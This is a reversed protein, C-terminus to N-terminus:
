RSSKDFTANRMFGAPLQFASIGGNHRHEELLKDLEPNRIMVSAEQRNSNFNSNALREEISNGPLSTYLQWGFFAITTLSAFGASLKWYFNAQNASKQVEIQTGYQGHVITLDKEPFEIKLRERFVSLKKDVDSGSSAREGSRMVEGVLHYAHWDNMSKPNDAMWALTQAFDESNIQGDVLASILEQYESNQYKM